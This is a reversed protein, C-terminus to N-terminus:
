EGRWGAGEERLVETLVLSLGLQGLPEVLVKGPEPGEVEGYGGGDRVDEKKSDAAVQMHTYVTSNLTPWMLVTQCYLGSEVDKILDLIINSLLVRGLVPLALRVLPQATLLLNM